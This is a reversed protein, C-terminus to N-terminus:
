AARFHQQARCRVEGGAVRGRPDSRVAADHPGACHAGEARSGGPGGSGDRTASSAPNTGAAVCTPPTVTVPPIPIAGPTAPQAPQPSAPAPESPAAPAAGPAPAPIAPATSQPQEPGGQPQSGAVGAWCSLLVLSSSSLLLLRRRRSSM